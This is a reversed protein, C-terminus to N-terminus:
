LTNIMVTSIQKKQYGFKRASRILFRRYSTNMTIMVVTGISSHFAACFVCAAPIAPFTKKRKLCKPSPMGESRINMKQFCACIGVPIALFLLPVASQVILVVLARSLAAKTQQSVNNRTHNLSKFSETIFFGCM